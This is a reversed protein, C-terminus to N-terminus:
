VGHPAFLYLSFALSGEVQLLSASDACLGLLTREAGVASVKLLLVVDTLTLSKSLLKFNVTKVVENVPHSLHLLEVVVLAELLLVISVRTLFLVKM